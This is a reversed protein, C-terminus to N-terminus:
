DDSYFALGLTGTGCAYGMVPSFETLWLEACDFEAAVREKLKEAEDPAYAHMVAVHVPNQGVKSRMIKILRDVGREKNRVAGLFRPVGSAITFVPRINLMSGAWAAVRPIRGTRYVYRVTDMLAVLGVRDRTAEAIKLVEALGKRAAAERAAALAVNYVASLKSSVTVCLIAKAPQGAERYANLCDAPSIASTKFSQPDKQLLAYAEAPTIDVWDKYVKGESYFSVPVVRIGYQAM